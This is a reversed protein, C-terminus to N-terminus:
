LLVPSAETFSSSSAGVVVVVTCMNLRVSMWVCPIRRFTANDQEECHHFTFYEVWIHWMDQLVLSQLFGFIIPSSSSHMLLLFWYLLSCHFSFIHPQLSRSHFCGKEPRTDNATLTDSKGCETQHKRLHSKERSLLSHTIKPNDKAAKWMRLVAEPYLWCETTNLYQSKWNTVKMLIRQHDTM